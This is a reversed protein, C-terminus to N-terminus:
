KCIVWKCLRVLTPVIADHKAWSRRDEKNEKEFVLRAILWHSVPQFIQWGDLPLSDAFIDFGHLEAPWQSHRQHAFHALIESFHTDVKLSSNGTNKEGDVPLCHHQEM